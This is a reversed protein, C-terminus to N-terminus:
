NTKVITEVSFSNDSFVIHVSYIGNKWTGTNLLTEMGVNRQYDVQQGISNFVKLERIFYTSEVSMESQVPNPFIVVSKRNNIIEELDLSIDTCINDFSNGSNYRNYAPISFDLMINPTGIGAWQDIPIFDPKELYAYSSEVLGETGFPLIIWKNNNGFVFHDSGKLTYNVISYPFSLNPIENGLINQSPSNNNSFFIGFSEARNRFITNYPGNPGHSDDIVINQCINQEFLNSFPYNGHLVMDGASDNPDSPWYPDFSYNYAFVNGNAGSQLIMAHRLHEFINNEVLCENSTAQLMVGYARGGVGYEFAHHFYSKSIYLNSSRSASIHSFTCNEFEVGEVWCNVAYNFDINSSQEPATNDTRKIKLCEIGVNEVPVFKIIYPARATDFNIRLPSEFIIENDSISNIQIIQGVSNEAWSSTVLDTDNQVIRVWDGPLFSGANSVVISRSDKIGSEIISTTVSSILSGQIKISHGTGGLSFTFVTNDVGKGKLIVNSPIDLRNDFLYNGEPFNLIAGPASISSIVNAVIANNSTIGNAIAGEAQMDIEIFDITTANRLGALTWDVSRMPVLTQSLTSFQVLLFLLTYTWNM